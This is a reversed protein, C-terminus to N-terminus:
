RAPRSCRAEAALQHDYDPDKPAIEEQVDEGHAVASYWGTPLRGGNQKKAQEILRRWTRRLDISPGGPSRTTPFASPRGGDPIPGRSRGSRGALRRSSARGCSSWPM